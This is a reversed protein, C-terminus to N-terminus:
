HSFLYEFEAWISRMYFGTQKLSERDPTDLMRIIKSIITVPLRLLLSKNVFHCRIGNIHMYKYCGDFLKADIPLRFLCLMTDSNMNYCINYYKCGNMVSMKRATLDYMRLIDTATDKYLVMKKNAQIISLMCKDYEACKHKPIEIPHKLAHWKLLPSYLYQYHYKSALALRCQYRPLLNSAVHQLLEYPLTNM